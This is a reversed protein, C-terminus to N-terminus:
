PQSMALELERIEVARQTPTQDDLREWHLANVACVCLLAEAMRRAETLNGSTRVQITCGPTAQIKVYVTRTYRRTVVGLWLVLYFLCGIPQICVLASIRRDGRVGYYLWATIVIFVFYSLGLILLRCVDM